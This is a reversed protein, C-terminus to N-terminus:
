SRNGILGHCDKYKLGSGCPCRENRGVKSSPVLPSQEVRFLREETRLREEAARLSRERDTLRRDRADLGETRTALRREVEVGFVSRDDGDRGVVTGLEHGILATIARGMSMGVADCYRKWTSWVVEAAPVRVMQYREDHGLGSLVKRDIRALTGKGLDM